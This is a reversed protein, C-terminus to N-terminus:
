SVQQGAARPSCASCSCLFSLACLAALRALSLALPCGKAMACGGAQNSSISGRSAGPRVGGAFCRRYRKLSPTWDKQSACARRSQLATDSPGHGSPKTRACATPLCALALCKPNSFRVALCTRYSLTAAAVPIAQKGLATAHQLTPTLM